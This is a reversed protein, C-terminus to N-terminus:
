AVARNSGRKLLLPAKSRKPIYEPSKANLRLLVAPASFPLIVSKQDSKHFAVHLVLEIVFTGGLHEFAFLTLRRHSDANVGSAPVSSFGVAGPLYTSSHSFDESLLVFQLSLAASGTLSCAVPHHLIRVIGLRLPTRLSFTLVLLAPPNCPATASVTGSFFSWLLGLKIVEITVWFAVSTVRQSPVSV